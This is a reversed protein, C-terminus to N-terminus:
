GACGSFDLEKYLADIKLRSRHLNALAVVYQQRLRAAATARLERLIDLNRDLENLLQMYTGAEDKPPKLKHFKKVGQQVVGVVAGYYGAANEPTAPGRPIQLVQQAQQACIKGARSALEDHSLRGGNGGCGAVVLLAVAFPTAVARM